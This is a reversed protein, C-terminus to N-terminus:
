LGIALKNVSIRSGGTKISTKNVNITNNSVGIEMSGASISLTTSGIERSNPSIQENNAAISLSNILSKLSTNTPALSGGGVPFDTLLTYVSGSGGFIHGFFDAWGEGTSVKRAM